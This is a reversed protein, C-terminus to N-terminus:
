LTAAFAIGDQLSGRTHIDSLDVDLQVLTHAIAPRLGTLLATAGLLRVARAARLIAGAGFTDLNRVGTIDIIAVRARRATVGELLANLILDAREPDIDGVLPLAIIDHTLPIIPTALERLAEAQRRLTENQERLRASQREREDESARRAAEAVHQETVDLIVGDWHTGGDDDRTPYSHARLWKTTAPPLRIRGQWQFPTLHEASAAVARQFGPMDDPHIVELSYRIDALMQEPTLDYIQRCGNSVFTFRAEGTLSLRWQYLMVPVCDVIGRLLAAEREADRLRVSWAAYESPLTLETM